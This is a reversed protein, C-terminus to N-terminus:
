SITLKASKCESELEVGWSIKLNQATERIKLKRMLLVFVIIM